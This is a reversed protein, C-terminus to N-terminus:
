ELKVVAGDPAPNELLGGGDLPRDLDQQAEEDSAFNRGLVDVPGALAGWAM